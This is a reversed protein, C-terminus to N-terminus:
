TARTGLAGSGKGGSPVAFRGPPAKSSGGRTSREDASRRSGRGGGGRGAPPHKEVGHCPPPLSLVRSPRGPHVWARPLAVPQISLALPLCGVARRHAAACCDDLPSASTHRGPATTSPAGTGTCWPFQCAPATHPAAVRQALKCTHGGAWRDRSTLQAM